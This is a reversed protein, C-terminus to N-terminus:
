KLTLKFAPPVDTWSQSTIKWAGGVKRLTFTMLVNQHLGRRVGLGTLRGLIMVYASSAQSVWVDAPNAFAEFRAGQLKGFGTLASLWNAAANPGSWRFPGQDDVIVADSAYLNSLLKPDRKQIAAIASDVPQMYPAMTPPYAAAPAGANCVLAAIFAPLFFRLKM